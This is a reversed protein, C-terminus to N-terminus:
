DILEVLAVHATDFCIALAIHGAAATHELGADVARRLLDLLLNHRQHALFDTRHRRELQRDRHRPQRLCPRALDQAAGDLLHGVALGPGHRRRDVVRRNQVLDATRHLLAPPSELGYRMASCLCATTTPASPTM